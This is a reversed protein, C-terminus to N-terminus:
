WWVKKIGLIYATINALLHLIPTIILLTLLNQWPLIYFPILFIYAGFIFDMQDFPVWPRGPKIGIRRKFFSKILDGTIAGLGFPLAYLFVNIEQYNLLSYFNLINNKALYWQLTLVLLAGIYGGYFGRYTKHDGFFKANIVYGFPFKLKGFIVPCMNAIYAPVAFYLSSIILDIM